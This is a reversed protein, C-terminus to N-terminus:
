AQAPTRSHKNGRSQACTPARSEKHAREITYPQKRGHTHALRNHTHARTGHMHAYTATCTHASSRAQTCAHNYTRPVHSHVHAHTVIILLTHVRSQAHTCVRSHTVTHETTAITNCWTSLDQLLKNVLPQLFRYDHENTAIHQYQQAGPTTRVQLPQCGLSNRFIQLLVLSLWM